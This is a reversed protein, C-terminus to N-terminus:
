KRVGQERDLEEALSQARARYNEENISDPEVPPAAKALDADRPGPSVAIPPATTICGGLTMLGALLLIGLGLRM